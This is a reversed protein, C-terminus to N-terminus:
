LVARELQKATVRVPGIAKEDLFVGEALASRHAPHDRRDALHSGRHLDADVVKAEVPQQALALIVQARDPLDGGRPEAVFRERDLKSGTPGGRDGDRTCLAS